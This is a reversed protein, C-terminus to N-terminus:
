NEKQFIGELPDADAVIPYGTIANQSNQLISKFMQLQKLQVEWIQYKCDVTKFFVKLCIQPQTSQIERLKYKTCIQMVCNEFIGKLLDTPNGM